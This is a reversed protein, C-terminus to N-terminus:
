LAGVTSRYSSPNHILYGYFISLQKEVVCLSPAHKLSHLDLKFLLDDVYKSQNILIGSDMNHLQIGLFYSLHRFDKLAFSADLRCILNFIM